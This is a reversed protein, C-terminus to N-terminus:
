RPAAAVAARRPGAAESSAAPRERLYSALVDRAAEAFSRAGDETLHGDHPIFWDDVAEKKRLLAPLLSRVELTPDGFLDAPIKQEAESLENALPLHLLLTEERDAIARIAVGIEHLNAKANWRSWVKNRAPLRPRLSDPAAISASRLLVAIVEPHPSWWPLTSLKRHLADQLLTRRRDPEAADEPSLVINQAMLVYPNGLAVPLRESLLVLRYPTDPDPRVTDAWKFGRWLDNEIFAVIVLDPRYRAVEHEYVAPWQAFGTAFMGFNLVKVRSRGLAALVATDANLLDELRIPWPTENQHCATFSDGLVAIRFEEPAKELTDERPSVHGARNIRMLNSRVVRNQDDLLLHRATTGPVYRFGIDADLRVIPADLVRLVSVPLVGLERYRVVRFLVESSLYV